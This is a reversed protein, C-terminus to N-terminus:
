KCWRLLTEPDTDNNKMSDHFYLLYRIENHWGFFLEEEDEKCNILTNLFETTKCAWKPGTPIMNWYSIWPNVRDVNYSYPLQAHVSAETPTRGMIFIHELSMVPTYGMGNFASSKLNRLVKTLSVAKAQARMTDKLTEIHAEAKQKEKLESQQENYEFLERGKM